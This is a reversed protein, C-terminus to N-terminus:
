NLKPWLFFFFCKWGIEYHLEDMQFLIQAHDSPIGLIEVDIM